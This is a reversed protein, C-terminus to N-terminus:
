VQMEAAHTYDGDPIAAAAASLGTSKAARPSHIVCVTLTEAAMEERAYIYVKM